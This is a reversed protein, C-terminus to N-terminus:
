KVVVKETRVGKGEEITIFYTGKGFTSLDIGGPAPVSGRTYSFVKKGSMDTIELRSVDDSLGELYIVGSTPNPYVRWSDKGGTGPIGTPVQEESRFHINDVVLKSGVFILASDQWLGSQIEIIVSDPEEPAALPVTFQIYGATEELYLGGSWFINGDKKLYINLWATDAPDAPEYKYDFVLTDVQNAFPNGGLIQCDGECEPPYYGTSANAPRAAPQNNQNGEYTTLELAYLGESADTSKAFGLGFETQIYWNEPVDVNRSDWEEFDGNMLAPQSTVGTFSLSDLLLTSGAPGHPEEEGAKFNASTVGIIVSDPVEALPPELTYELLTYDTKIGGLKIFYYGINNGGKSFALIIVASDETEVNYKYWARIGAPAQDYPMGGTWTDPSGEPNVNIFYGFVTDTASANTTLEVAYNGHWADMSKIVNFPLNYRFFEDANSTNPYNLPNEIVTSNWNEFNGNPVPSQGIASLCALGLWFSLLQKKM